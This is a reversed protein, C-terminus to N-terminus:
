TSQAVTHTWNKILSPGRVSVYRFEIINQHVVNLNLLKITVILWRCACQLCAVVLSHTAAVTLPMTDSYLPHSNSYKFDVAFCSALWRWAHSRMGHVVGVAISRALGICKIIAALGLCQFSLYMYVLRKAENLIRTFDIEGFSMASWKSWGTLCPCTAHDCRWLVADGM